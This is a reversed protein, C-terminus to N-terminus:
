DSSSSPVPSLVFGRMEDYELLFEDGPEPPESLDLLLQTLLRHGGYQSLIAEFPESLTNGNRETLLIHALLKEGDVAFWDSVLEFAIYKEGDDDDSPRPVYVTDLSKM